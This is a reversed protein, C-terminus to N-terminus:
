GHIIASVNNKAELIKAKILIDESFYRREFCKRLIEGLKDLKCLIIRESNGAQEKYEDFDAAVTLIEFFKGQELVGSHGGPSNYPLILLDNESFLNLLAKESVFGKYDTIINKYRILLDDFHSKFQMFHSNITGSLTLTFKHGDNKLSQLVELARELNKQPGWSGHMLVRTINNNERSKLMLESNQLNNLFVTTVAELYTANLYYIKINKLNNEIKTKYINLLVYTKIRSFLVMETRKLFKLRIKDYLRNYGLSYPENTFTSNHYILKINKNRSMATLFLPVFLGIINPLSSDGFGTPVVNFIMIDFEQPKLSFLRLMSLPNGFHYIEHIIVKDPIMFDESNKNKFPCFVEVREVEVLQSLLLVLPTGTTYLLKGHNLFDGVYAIKLKGKM